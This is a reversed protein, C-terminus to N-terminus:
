QGGAADGASMSRVYEALAKLEEAKLMSAYGPMSGKGNSLAELLAEDSLAGMKEADTLDTPSPDMAAAAPGDGKGEPGHCMVCHKAYNEAPDTQVAAGLPAGSPGDVAPKPVLNNAVGILAFLGVGLAILPRWGNRNDM